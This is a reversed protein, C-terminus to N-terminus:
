EVSATVEGGARSGVAQWVLFDTSDSFMTVSGDARVVNAGGTHYSSAAIHATVYSTDGCSYRQTTPDSMKRTWNVPLTHSYYVNQPLARYYQQGGYRLYTGAGSTPGNICENVSRGDWKNAIATSTIFNTTDNYTNTAANDLNGIKVEAFMATNSTGDTIGGMSTGQMVANTPQTMAFIGDLNFGTTPNVVSGTYSAGGTSARYSLRGYGSMTIGITESPCIYSPVDAQRGKANAGTKAPISNVIPADSNVNYNLDFQTYKNAQEFYPLLLVQPPADSSRTARVGANDALVVTHKRPPLRKYTSEFNLAALGIQKLNNTCQMRRAAERAAQVAPLLLGVLIGIIAIVVLLEVLTFGRRRVIKVM